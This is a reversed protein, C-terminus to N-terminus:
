VQSVANLGMTQLHHLRSHPYGVSDYFPTLEKDMGTGDHGRRPATADFEDFFLCCPAAAAAKGFVERM